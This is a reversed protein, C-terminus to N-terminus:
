KSARGHDPNLPTAPGRESLATGGEGEVLARRRYSYRVCPVGRTGVIHLLSPATAYLLGNLRSPSGARAILADVRAATAQESDAALGGVDVGADGPM